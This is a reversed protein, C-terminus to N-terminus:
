PRTSAIKGRLPSAARWNNFALEYATRQLVVGDPREHRVVHGLGDVWLAGPVGELRWARVSDNHVSRWKASSGDYVASDPVVFLSEAALRITAPQLAGTAPDFTELVSSRGVRAEGGLMTVVPILPVATVQARVVHRLSDITRGRSGSAVRKIFDLLTDNLLRGRILLPTSDTTQQVTFERLELGRTLRVRNRVTHRRLSDGSQVDSVLYDTIQIRSPLTDVTTSAYGVHKGDTLVAFHTAGPSVRLASEALRESENRSHERRTFAAIGIVWAFVIGIAVVGRRTM